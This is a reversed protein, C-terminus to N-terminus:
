PCLAGKAQICRFCTVFSRVCESPLIFRSPHCVALNVVYFLASPDDVARAKRVPHTLGFEDTYVIPM